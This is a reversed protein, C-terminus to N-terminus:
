PEVTGVQHPVYTLEPFKGLTFREPKGNVRKFLSFSKIGAATVRLQLGPTKSDRYTERGSTPFPLATLSSKTFNLTNDNMCDYRPTVSPNREAHIEILRSLPQLSVEKADILACYLNM